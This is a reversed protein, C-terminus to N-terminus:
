SSAPSPFAFHKLIAYICLDSFSSMSILPFLARKCLLLTFIAVRLHFPLHPNFTSKLIKHFRVPARIGHLLFWQIRDIFNNSFRKVINRLSIYVNEVISNWSFAQFGTTRIHREYMCWCELTVLFTAIGIKYSFISASSLFFFSWSFFSAIWVRLFLTITEATITARAPAIKAMVLFNLSFHVWCGSLLLLALNQMGEGM